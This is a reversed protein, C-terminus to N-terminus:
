DYSDRNHRWTGGEIGGRREAEEILDSWEDFLIELRYVHYAFIADGREVDFGLTSAFRLFPGYVLCFEITTSIQCCKWLYPGWHLNKIRLKQLERENMKHM